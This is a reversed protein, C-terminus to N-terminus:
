VYRSYEDLVIVFNSNYIIHSLVLIIIEGGMLCQHEHSRLFDLFYWCTAGSLPYARMEILSRTDM